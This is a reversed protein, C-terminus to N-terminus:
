VRMLCTMAFMSDQGVRGVRFVGSVGSGARQGWLGGSGWGALLVGIASGWAVRHVRHHAGRQQAAEGASSCEHGTREAEAGGGRQAGAAALARAGAVGDPEAAGLAAAALSRLSVSFTTFQDFQGSYM